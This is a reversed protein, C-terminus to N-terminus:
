CIGDLALAAPILSWHSFAPQISTELLRLFNLQPDRPSLNWFCARGCGRSSWGETWQGGLGEGGEGATSHWLSGAPTGDAAHGGGPAGLFSGETPQQKCTFYKIDTKKNVSSWYEM